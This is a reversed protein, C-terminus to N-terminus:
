ARTFARYSFDMTIHTLIYGTASSMGDRKSVDGGIYTGTTTSAPDGLVALITQLLLMGTVYLSYPWHELAKSLVSSKELYLKHETSAKVPLTLELSPRITIMATEQLRSSEAELQNSWSTTIIYGNSKKLNQSPVISVM